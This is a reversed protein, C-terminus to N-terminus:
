CAQETWIKRGDIAAASLARTPVRCVTDFICMMVDVCVVCM